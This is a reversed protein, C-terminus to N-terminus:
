PANITEKRSTCRNKRFPRCSSEQGVGTEGKCKCAPASILNQLSAGQAAVGLGPRPCAQGPKANAARLWRGSRTPSTRRCLGLCRATQLTHGPLVALVVGSRMRWGPATVFAIRGPDGAHAENCGESRPPSDLLPLQLRTAALIPSVVGYSLVGIYTGVTNTILDTMGCERTPLYSQLIEITLIVVTGVIVTM